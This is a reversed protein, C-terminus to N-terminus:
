LRRLFGLPGGERCVRSPFVKLGYSTINGKGRPRYLKPALEKLYRRETNGYADPEVARFLASATTDAVQLLEVSRPGDVRFPHDEFADWRIAVGDSTELAKRYDHLKKVRFGRLHAFTVIADTGGNDTVFWSIRELLLRLAWLYMPDPHSIYAMEGAPMPQGILDKHIVVNVITAIPFGAIDQAAKLRQSHSFKVFHLVHGPHRRLAKRLAALQTRVEADHADEVIVASVVFHRDSAPSIGRDGAEDVYVRYLVGGM